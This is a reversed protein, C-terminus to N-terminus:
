HIFIARLALSIKMLHSIIAIDSTKPIVDVNTPFDCRIMLQTLGCKLTKTMKNKLKLNNFRDFNDM